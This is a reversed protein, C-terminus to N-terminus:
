LRRVPLGDPEFGRRDTGRDTPSHFKPGHFNLHGIELVGGERHEDHEKRSRDQVQIEVEIQRNGLDVLVHLPSLVAICEMGLLKVKPFINEKRM